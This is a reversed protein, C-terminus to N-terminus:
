ELLPETLCGSELETRVAALFRAAARGDWVGHDVSLTLTMCPRLCAVGDVLAVTSRVRGAVLVGSAVFTSTLAWDVPVTSIQFTGAVKRRYRPSEFMWRLILRRLARSPVLRGWRRLSDLMQKDTKRVEAVRSATETAIDAISKREANEIVLVPAVFIEGTVSLGVDIAPPSLRRSGSTLLHLDRNSDLARATAYVLMHTPTAIVGDARLQDLRALAATMDVTIQHAGFAPRLVDLSDRMWREAYDLSRTEETRMAVAAVSNQTGM